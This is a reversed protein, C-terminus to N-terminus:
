LTYYIATLYLYGVFLNLYLPNYFPNNEIGGLNEFEIKLFTSYSVM